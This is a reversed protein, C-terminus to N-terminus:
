PVAGVRELHQMLKPTVFQDLTSAGPKPSKLTLSEFLTSAMDPNSLAEHMVVQAAEPNQEALWKSFQALRIAPKTISEPSSSGDAISMGDAIAGIRRMHDAPFIARLAKRQQDVKAKIAAGTPQQLDNWAQQRISRRATQNNGVSSWARSVQEPDSLNIEIPAEDEGELPATIGLRWLWGRLRKTAFKEIGSMGSQPAKLSASEILSEAVDPEYLATRMLKEVGQSNRENLWRYFNVFTEVRKSSRGRSIGTYSGAMASPNLGTTRKMVDVLDYAIPQAKGTVRSFEVMELGDALTELRSLHKPSFVMSLSQRNGDLFERLKAGDLVTLDDWLHRQLAKRADPYKETSKWLQRMLDPKKLAEDIVGARTASGGSIAGLRRALQTDEARMKRENHVGMRELLPDMAGEIRAKEDDTQKTLRRLDDTTEQRIAQRERSIAAREDALRKQEGLKRDRIIQKGRSFRGEVDGVRAVLDNVTKRLGPLHQLAGRRSEAWRELSRPNIVGNAVAKAALDDLAVAELSAMLEPRTAAIRGIQEAADASDLFGLAVDEDLTRYFGTGDKSSTKKVQGREFPEIIKEFYARRFDRWNDAAVSRDIPEQGMEEIRAKIEDPSATRWNVDLDDLINAMDDAVDSQAKLAEAADMDQERFRYNGNLDDELANLLDDPMPRSARGPFYGAEWATLAAEDHKMGGSKRYLGPRSRAGIDRVGLEGSQEKIGGRKVLFDTLSEFPKKGGRAMRAANLINEFDPSQTYHSAKEIFPAANPFGSELNNLGLIQEDFRRLMENANALRVLSGPSTDRYAERIERAMNERVPKVDSFTISSNGRLAQIDEFVDPMHKLQSPLLGGRWEDISRAFARFPTTLQLGDIGLNQAMEDIEAKRAAREAKISDRIKGGEAARDVRRIGGAIDARAGNTRATLDELARRETDAIDRSTPLARERESLGQLRDQTRERLDFANDRRIAPLQSKEAELDRVQQAAAERERVLPDIAADSGGVGEPANRAAYDRLAKENAADFARLTELDDGSAKKVIAAKTENLAESGTAAALDPNFGEVERRLESARRMRAQAADTGLHPGLHRAVFDRARGASAKQSLISDAFGATKNAANKVLPMAAMSPALGGALGGLVPGVMSDPTAERGIEEGIGSGIAGATEGGLLVAQKGERLANRVAGTGRSVAGGVTNGLVKKTAATAGRDAMKSLTSAEPAVMGAQARSLNFLGQEVANSAPRAASGLMRAPAAVVAAPGLSEALVEGGRQLLREGSTTPEYAFRKGDTGPIDQEGRLLNSVYGLPRKSRGEHTDDLFGLLAYDVAGAVTGLGRNFGQGINKLASVPGTIGDEGLGIKQNFEDRGIKDAYFKKYLVDALQGDPVDKYAPHQQRFSELMSTM